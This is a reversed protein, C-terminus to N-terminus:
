KMYVFSFDRWVLPICISPPPAEKRPRIWGVRSCSPDKLRVLLPCVDETFNLGRIDQNEFYLCLGRKYSILTGV